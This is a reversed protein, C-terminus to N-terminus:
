TFSPVCYKFIVSYKITSSINFGEAIAFIDNDVLISVVVPLCM